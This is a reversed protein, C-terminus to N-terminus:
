LTEGDIDVLKQLYSNLCHQTFDIRQTLNTEDTLFGGFARQTETIEGFYVREDDKIIRFVDKEKITIIVTHKRKRFEKIPNSFLHYHAPHNLQILIKLHFVFLLM